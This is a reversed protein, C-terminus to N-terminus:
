PGAAQRVYKRVAPTFPMGAQLLPENEYAAVLREGLATDHGVTREMLAQWDRALERAASAQPPVGDAMLREARDLLARWEPRTKNLRERQEPSAYKALVALRRRIADDIYDLLELSMGAPLPLSPQERLMRGWHGLFELDGDMWRTALDIWRQVLPQLEIADPPVGRDKAAHIAQVLSPWEAEHQKWRRLAVKLEEVSFYQQFTKMMALSALWDGVEPQGGGALVLQMMGLRERLSQSRAIEQDLASIQRALIAQLSSGGGDLLQAVEALPVGMQRLTQIGHLRAVDDRSYLRYGGESRASPRLLGISDYHHLARVTVGTRKALEGVRLPM